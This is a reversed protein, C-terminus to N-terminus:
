LHAPSSAGMHFGDPGTPDNPDSKLMTPREEWHILNTSVIHEWSCAPKLDWLLYFVHYEGNWYFPITDGLRGEKPFFHLAILSDEADPLIDPDLPAEPYEGEGNIGHCEACYTDYLIEGQAIQQEAVVPSRNPFVKGSVTISSIAVLVVLLTGGIIINRKRFVM